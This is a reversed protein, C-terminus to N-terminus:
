GKDLYEEKWIPKTIKELKKDFNKLFKDHEKSKLLFEAHEDEPKATKSLINERFNEWHDRISCPMLWNDPNQLHCLGYEDQWKRGNVFLDSFLADALKKGQGYLDLVNDEFFPVFACPTINGNWDIYLYGKERGYAICGDALVGSNWFDAICYKKEELLFQWKRFLKIRQEPTLMLERLEKAQGIPMLQFMWAYTAGLEQFLFDYFQDDLLIDINKQTATISFGFPVGTKKLNETAEKIKNFIGKGRREDTEKEWGEISIAPTVNGLKALKEATKENTLTGNTYFLFFMDRYKEWIDFLTKGHDEYMLPEGGSITMFRNGWENYVEDCIKDVIEFTLTPANIKSSAYCGVCKLNCKQTPSFVIFSPPRLNYKKKFNEKKEETADQNLLSYRVLTDIVRDLTKLNISKKDVNRKISELMAVLFQFKKEQITKLSDINEEVIMGHMKEKLKNTLSDRGIQTHLIKKLLSIYIDSKIKSFQSNEVKLIPTEEGKDEKM